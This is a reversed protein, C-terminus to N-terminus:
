SWWRAASGVACRGILAQVTTASAAVSLECAVLQHYPGAVRRLTDEARELRRQTHQQELRLQDNM